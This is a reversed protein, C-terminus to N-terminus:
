QPPGPDGPRDLNPGQDQCRDSCGTRGVADCLELASLARAYLHVADLGGVFNDTYKGAGYNAGIAVGDNGGQPIGGNLTGCGTVDGDVYTRLVRENAAYTCAVHHWTGPVPPISVQGLVSAGGIGCRVSGDDEYAVYYQTNNGLMVFRKNKLPRLQPSIWLELTLDAVDFDNTEGFRLHSTPGFSGAASSV